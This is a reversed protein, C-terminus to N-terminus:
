SDVSMLAKLKRYEESMAKFAAESGFGADPHYAKCLSKYRKELKDPTDCGMFYTSSANANSNGTGGTHGTSGAYESNGFNENDGSYGNNETQWTNGSNEKVLMTIEEKLKDLRSAMKRFYKDAKDPRHMFIDEWRKLLKTILVRYSGIRSRLWLNDSADMIPAYSKEFYMFDHIHDVLKHYAHENEPHVRMMADELRYSTPQEEEDKDAETHTKLREMRRLTEKDAYPKMEKGWARRSAGILLTLSVLTFFLALYSIITLTIDKTSFLSLYAFWSLGYLSKAINMFQLYISAMILSACITDFWIGISAFRLALRNLLHTICFFICSLGRLFRKGRSIEGGQLYRYREKAHKQLLAYTRYSFEFLYNFIKSLFGAVANMGTRLVVTLISWLACLLATVGMVVIIMFVFAATTEQLRLTYIGALVVACGLVYALIVVFHELTKEILKMLIAFILLILAPISLLNIFLIEKCKKAISM